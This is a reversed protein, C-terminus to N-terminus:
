QRAPCCLPVTCRFAAMSVDVLVSTLIGSVQPALRVIHGDVYADDSSEYQRAHLWWLVGGAILVVLVVAIGILLKPRQLLSKPPKDDKDGDSKDGGAEGDGDGDDGKDGDNKRDADGKVSPSAKDETMKDPPEDAKNDANAM